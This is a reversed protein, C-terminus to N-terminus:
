DIMINALTGNKSGMNSGCGRALSELGCSSNGDTEGKSWGLVNLKHLPRFNPPMPKPMLPEIDFPAFTPSQEAQQEIQPIHFGYDGTREM